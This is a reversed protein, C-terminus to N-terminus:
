IVVPRLGSVNAAVNLDSPLWVRFVSGEGVKSDLLILGEHSQIIREVIALGLGTGATKTTFFPEFIQAAVEPPIGAGTDQLEVLVGPRNVRESTIQQSIGPANHLNCVKVRMALERLPREGLAQLANVGLNLFVQRLQEPDANFPEGEDGSLTIKIDHSEPRSALLLKVDSLLRGLDTSMLKPPRMRAFRLFDTIIQDLRDSESLVIELLVKKSEPIEISRGIEQVAGRISALPNRIEHAITASIHGMTEIRQRHKLFEEMKKEASIDDLALILGDAKSRTDVDVIPNIRVALPVIKGDPRKHSIEIRRSKSEMAAARSQDNIADGLLQVISAGANIKKGLMREAETNHYLLLHERDVVLL